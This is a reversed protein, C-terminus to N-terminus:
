CCFNKDRQTKRMLSCFFSSCNHMKLHLFTFKMVKEWWSDILLFVLPPSQMMRTSICYLLSDLFSSTTVLPFRWNHDWVDQNWQLIVAEEMNGSWHLNNSIFFNRNLSSCVKLHLIKECPVHPSAARSQCTQEPLSTSIIELNWIWMLPLISVTKANFVQHLEKIEM